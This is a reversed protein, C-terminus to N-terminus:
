LTDGESPGLQYSSFVANLGPNNDTIILWVKDPSGEPVSFNSSGKLQYQRLLRKGTTPDKLSLRFRFGPDTFKVQLNQNATTDLLYSDTRDALGLHGVWSGSAPLAASTNAPADQGPHIDGAPDVDLSFLADKHVSDYRNGVSFVFGQGSLDIYTTHAQEGRKGYVRAWHGKVESGDPRYLRLEFGSHAVSSESAQGTADFVVKRSQIIGRLLGREAIGSSVKFYRKQGKPLHAKLTYTGPSLPTATAFSEGGNVPHLHRLDWPDTAAEALEIVEVLREGLQKGDAADFYQGEGANAIAQMQDQALPDLDFGVVHTKLSIGMAALQAAADVPDGECTEEGDSILIILRQDAEIAQMDQGAALLSAALPTYGYAQLKRAQLLIAAGSQGNAFPILLATNPCSAEPTKPLSNDFGYARLGLWIAQTDLDALAAQLASLALERKTSGQLRAMMSGSADLIIEVAVKQQDNGNAQPLKLPTAPPLATQSAPLSDSNAPTNDPTMPAAPANGTGSPMHLPPAQGGPLSAGLAAQLAAISTALTFGGGGSLAIEGLQSFNGPPGIGITDVTIQQANLAEALAVPDQECTEQGDSILIIKRPPPLGELDNAAQQLAYALPTQHGQATIRGALNQVEQLTRPSGPALALQSHLCDQAKTGSKGGAFFRVGLGPNTLLQGQMDAFVARAIDVRPIGQESERMSASIDLLIVSHESDQAWVILMPWFGLLLIVITRM